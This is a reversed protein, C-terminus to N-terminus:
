TTISTLSPMMWLKGRLSTRLIVGNFVMLHFLPEIDRKYLTSEYIAARTGLGQNHFALNPHISLHLM